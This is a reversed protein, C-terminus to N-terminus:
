DNRWLGPEDAVLATQEDLQEQAVDARVQQDELLMYHGVATFMADAKLRAQAAVMEELPRRPVLAYVLDCGLADAARRLTDLRVKGDQETTELRLVSTRVTGMRRGLEEASMGLSERIARVWGDRPPVADPRADRVTALRRDLARRAARRSASSPLRPVM